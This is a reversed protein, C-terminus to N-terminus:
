GKKPTAAAPAAPQPQPRALKEFERQYDATSLKKDGLQFMPEPKPQDTM